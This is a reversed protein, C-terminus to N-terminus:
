FQYFGKKFITKMQFMSVKKIEVSSANPSTLYLEDGMGTEFQWIKKYFGGVGLYSTTFNKKLVTISNDNSFNVAEVSLKSYLDLDPTIRMGYVIGAGYSMDSLVRAKSNQFANSDTAKLEKWSVSPSIQWFFFQDFIDSVRRAENPKELPGEKELATLSRENPMEILIIKEGTHILNGKAHRMKPNLKLIEKLMGRRGYIPKINNQYLIDSLTDGEKAIYTYAMASKFSLSSVLTFAWVLKFKYFM